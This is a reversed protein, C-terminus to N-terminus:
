MPPRRQPGTVSVGKASRKATSCGCLKPRDCGPNSFGVKWMRPSRELQAVVVASCIRM